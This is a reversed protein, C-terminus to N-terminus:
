EDLGRKGDDETSSCAGVLSIFVYSLYFFKGRFELELTQLSWKTSELPRRSFFSSNGVSFRGVRRVWTVDLGGFCLYKVESQSWKLSEWGPSLESKSSSIKVDDDSAEMFVSKVSQSM